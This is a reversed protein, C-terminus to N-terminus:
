GYIMQIEQSIKTLFSGIFHGLKLPKEHIILSSLSSIVQIKQRGLNKARICGLFM